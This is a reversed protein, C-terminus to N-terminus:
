CQTLTLLQQQSTQILLKPTTAALIVRFMRFGMTPSSTFVGWLEFWFGRLFCHDISANAAFPVLGFFSSNSAIAPFFDYRSTKIYAVAVLLLHVSRLCNLLSCWGRGVMIKNCVELSDWKRVGLVIFPESFPKVAARGAEANLRNEFFFAGKL